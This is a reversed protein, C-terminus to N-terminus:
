SGWAGSATAGPQSARDLVDRVKLALIEPTFPKPLFATHHSVSESTIALHHAFGSVYLVKLTPRRRVLRQALDPGSLGPMVVDSLLLHIPGVFNSEVSLAQVGDPATLVKYGREELVRQVLTRLSAEDEVVLVTESGRAPAAAPAQHAVPTLPMDVLPLYIVVTTGTGPESKIEIYGSSQKVIGYVTSLGLGTGKGVPKTTFFPEFVHALVDPRMGTGTDTVRLAVHRGTTAGPHGAAFADDIDVNATAITLRGGMPMADRANVVLNMLVQEIQSPDLKVRGLSETAVVDLRIDEGILRSLMKTLDGVIQNLDLVEPELRQKRSFALLQRTLRVAQEGAKKIEEMDAKLGPNQIVEALVFDAYGLIATLLNNFDHAIGGALRGVAEMKQSRQFREESDAAAQEAEKQATVDEKVAVFHTIAGQEDTVPSVVVREWYLDGNKKKNHFEGRWTGGSTITNWLSTYVDSSSEGSKLIRPNQGKVEDRSYGSVSLFAPNVYEIQGLRDTIMVSSQSQEIARTLKRLEAETRKHETIDALVLLLLDQDESRFVTLRALTWIARDVTTRIYIDAAQPQRTAIAREALDLLGSKWWDQARFNQSRIEEVTAGIMRVAETNCAICEGSLKYTFAGVPAAAFLNENFALASALKRTTQERVTVDRVIATLLQNGQVGAKSISIEAPFRQGDARRGTVLAAPGGMTRRTVGREAFDKVDSEHQGRSDEPILIGQSRGIAEQASLGFMREAAPNFLVIRQQEDVSVIADMASDIISKFREREERLRAESQTFQETLRRGTEQLRARETVDRIAVVYGRAPTGSAEPLLAANVDCVLGRGNKAFCVVAGQWGGFAALVQLAQKVTVGQFAVRLLELASQGAAEGANWGFLATAAPNWYTVRYEADTGIVADRVFDSLQAGSHSQM